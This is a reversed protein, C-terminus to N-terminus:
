PQVARDLADKSRRVIEEALSCEAFTFDEREVVFRLAERLILISAEAEEARKRWANHMEQETQLAIRYQLGCTCDGDIPHALADCNTGHNM